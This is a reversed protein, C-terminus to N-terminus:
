RRGTFRKRLRGMEEPGLGKLSPVDPERAFLARESSVEGWSDTAQRWGKAFAKEM